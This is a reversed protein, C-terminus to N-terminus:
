YLYTVDMEGCVYTHPVPTAATGLHRGPNCGLKIVQVQREEVGSFLGCGDQSSHLHVMICSQVMHRTIIRVLPSSNRPSPQHPM